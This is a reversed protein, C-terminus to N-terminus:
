TSWLNNEFQTAQQWVLTSAKFHLPFSICICHMVPMRSKNLSVARVRVISARLKELQSVMFQNIWSFVPMVNCETCRLVTSTQELYSFLNSFILSYPQLDARDRATKRAKTTSYTVREKMAGAFYKLIGPYMYLVQPWHKSQQHFCISRLYHSRQVAAM